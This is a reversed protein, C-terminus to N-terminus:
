SYNNIICFFNFEFGEIDKLNERKLVKENNQNQDEFDNIEDEKVENSKEADKNEVIKIELHTNKFGDMMEYHEELDKM